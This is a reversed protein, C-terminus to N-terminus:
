LRSKLKHESEERSGGHAAQWQNWKEKSNKAKDLFGQLLEPWGGKLTRLDVPRGTKLDMFVIWGTVEAVFAQQKLSYLSTIGNSRDPLM